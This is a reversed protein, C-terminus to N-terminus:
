RNRWWTRTNPIWTPHSWSSTRFRRKWSDKRRREKRSFLCEQRLLQSFLIKSRTHLLVVLDRANPTNRSLRVCCRTQRLLHRQTLLLETIEKLLLFFLVSRRSSSDILCISTEKKWSNNRQREWTHIFIRALRKKASSWTSVSRFVINMWFTPELVRKRIRASSM